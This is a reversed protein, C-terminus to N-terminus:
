MIRSRYFIFAKQLDTKCTCCYGFIQLITIKKYYNHETIDDLFKDIYPNGVIEDDKLYNAGLQCITFIEPTHEIPQEKEIDFLVNKYNIYRDNIGMEDIETNIRIYNFIERQLGTKANPAIELITREILNKNELFVGNTYVYFKYNYYHIKLRAMVEEAIILHKEKAEGDKNFIKKSKSKKKEQVDTVVKEIKKATQLLTELKLIGKVNLDCPDKCESDVARASIEYLEKDALLRSIKKVFDKGAEDQENHIYIKEFKEFYPVFEEKFNSAGPIGIAPMDNEMLAHCDSEGEVIIVYKFGYNLYREIHELGYPILKAGKDCFLKPENYPSNRYRSMVYNGETDYYPIEVCRGNERTKVGLGILFNVNLSKEEAYDEVTYYYEPSLEFDSEKRIMDIAEANSIELLSSVLKVINGKEGCSYCNNLGTRLNVGWSPKKDEHTGHPCSATLQEGSIKFQKNPLLSKIFDVNKSFSYSRNREMEDKDYM